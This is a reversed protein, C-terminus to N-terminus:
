VHEKLGDLTINLQIVDGSTSVMDTGITTRPSKLMSKKLGLELVMEKTVEIMISHVSWDDTDVKAGVLHGIKRGDKTIIEKEETCGLDM